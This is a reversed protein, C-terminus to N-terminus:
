NEIDKSTDGEEKKEKLRERLKVILLVIFIGFYAILFWTETDM